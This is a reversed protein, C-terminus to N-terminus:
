AQQYMIRGVRACYPRVVPASMTAGGCADTQLTGTSPRKRRSPGDETYKLCASASGRPCDIM